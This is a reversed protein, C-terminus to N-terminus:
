LLDSLLDSSFSSMLIPEFIIVQQDGRNLGFQDPSLERDDLVEM